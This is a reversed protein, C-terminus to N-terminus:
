RKEIATHYKVDLRKANFPLGDVRWVDFLKGATQFAIYMHKADPSFALGSTEGRIGTGELISYFRGNSDRAHVGSIEVQEETFYLIDQSNGVIRKVQDPKGDFLGSVTTRNYYTGRDLDLVFLQKINKCVFFLENKHVDIGESQPYVVRANLRAAELDRTWAFSGGDNTSNPFVMLYDEVGDGHLMEWPYDWDPKQPTFRRVAGKNRDETVFFHPRERNRVDFAFSEWRGGSSGLTM